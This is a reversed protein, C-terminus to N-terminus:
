CARSASDPSGAHILLYLCCRRQTRCDPLAPQAPPPSRRHAIKNELTDAATADPPLYVAEPTHGPLSHLLSAPAPPSRAPLGAIPRQPPAALPWEPEGGGHLVPPAPACSPLLLSPIQM